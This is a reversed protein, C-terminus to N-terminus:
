KKTEGARHVRIYHDTLSTHLVAVPVKTMHCMLCDRTPNVKCVSGRVRSHGADEAAEQSADGSHCQLCKKEYFSPSRKSDRHPDHCTLCNLAGSSETYCRSMTMTVGPSRVFKTDDPRREIEAPDGVIHCARCQSTVAEGQDVTINVIARDPFDAAVAAVHNAGPGHCRECGIGADAVEPGNGIKEADRFERPNTTHCHLCRVVGDRIQILQGRFLQEESGMGADGATRGWIPKGGERHFSNRLARYGGEGDRGIMTVYRDATGFAYDVITQFVRDDIRTEAKIVKGDQVLTHTVMPNDPDTLPGPPRPQVLLADGHHFTRAHRTQAHARSADAHCPACKAEGTYPSPEPELPHEARYSGSRALEAQARDVQGQQLASRSALWAAELDTSGAGLSSASELWRDAARPRGLILLCRALLKHYLAADLPARQAKPDLELGKQLSEAAGAYDEVTVRNTGLLLLGAAEWGPIQTVRKALTMAEDLRQKRALLNALWLLLEPLDPREDAARSWLKLTLDEDGQRLSALGLLFLDEPQMQDNTLRDHYIAIAPGDRGMRVSSRALLRLADLDSAEVKLRARALEGAKPYDQRDYAAQATTASSSQDAHRSFILLLLILGVLVALGAVAHWIRIARGTTAMSM